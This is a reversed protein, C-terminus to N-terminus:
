DIILTKINRFISKPSADVRNSAVCEDDWRGQHLWTKPHPIFQGNEKKWQETEKAQHIAGLIKEIVPKRKLKQWEKWAAQKGVKRPYANWFLLFDTGFRDDRHDLTTNDSESEPDSESESESKDVFTGKKNTIQKLMHQVLTRRSKGSKKGAQSRKESIWHAKEWEKLLRENTFANEKHPHQMFFGLVFEMEQEPLGSLLSLQKNDTPLSCDGSLWCACLLRIYAGQQVLTSCM